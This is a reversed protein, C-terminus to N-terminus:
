EAIESIFITEGDKLKRPRQLAQDNAYPQLVVYNGLDCLKTGKPVFLEGEQEVAGKVIIRIMLVEPIVIVAGRRTIKRELKIKKHDAHPLLEASQLLEGLTSGKKIKYVGPYKVAGQVEVDITRIITNNQGIPASPLLEYSHYLSWGVLTCMFFLIVCVAFWERPLLSPKHTNNQTLLDTM